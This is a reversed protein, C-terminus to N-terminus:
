EGGEMDEVLAAVLWPRRPPRSKVALRGLLTDVQWSLGPDLALAALAYRTAYRPRGDELWWSALHLAVGAAEEDQPVARVWKEAVSDAAREITSRWRAYTTELGHM